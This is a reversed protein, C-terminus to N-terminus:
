LRGGRQRRKGALRGRGVGGFLEQFVQHQQTFRAFHDGSGGLEVRVVAREEGLGALEVQHQLRIKTGGAVLDGIQPGLGRLRNEALVLVHQVGVPHFQGEADRLAAFREAVLDVRAIEGEARALELLHFDLVEAVGVVAHAEGVLPELLAQFKVALDADGAFFEM